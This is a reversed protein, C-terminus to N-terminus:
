KNYIWWQGDVKIWRQEFPSSMPHKIQPLTYNIEVVADCVDEKCSVSKVRAFNWMTRGAVYRHYENASTHERFAPSNYKYAEKLGDVDKQLLADMRAQARKTVIEEPTGSEFLTACATLGAMLFASVLLNGIKM